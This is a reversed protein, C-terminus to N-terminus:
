YSGREMNDGAMERICQISELDLREGVVSEFLSTDFTGNEQRANDNARDNNDVSPKIGKGDDHSTSLAYTSDNAGSITLSTDLSIGGQDQFGHEVGLSREAVPSQEVFFRRKKTPRQETDAASM